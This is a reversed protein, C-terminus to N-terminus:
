FFMFMLFFRKVPIQIANKQKILISEISPPMTRDKLINRYEELSKEEGRIAEELIAEENNTSFTSKLSMWNRHVIGKFSGSDEPLEGYTLIETRLQRAFRSREEARNSFFNKLNVNDVEKMAKIYGKEADYNKILLENLKDSIIKEYKMKDKIM